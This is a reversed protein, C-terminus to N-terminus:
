GIVEFKGFGAGNKSSIGIKHLKNLTDIDGSLKFIGLSAPINTGYAKIIVKKCKIPVIEPIKNINKIQANVCQSFNEFFGEENYLFYRDKENEFHKRVVLPSLMNIIIENDLIEKEELLKVRLISMSNGKGIDFSNEHKKMGNYLCFALKTDITSIFLSIEQESLEICDNKFRPNKLLAWFTFPKMKMSGKQYFENYITPAESQLTMKIFSLMTRRWDLPLESKKLKLTIQIKMIRGEKDYLKMYLGLIIRNIVYIWLIGKNLM